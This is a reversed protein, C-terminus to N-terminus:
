KKDLSKIVTAPNGGVVSNPPVDNVVVAGAAVISNDGINAMVVSNNGLWCNRGISVKTFVGGQQKIPTGANDFHHQNKGSLIHVGSGLLTDRGIRCKGINCQPGIYAGHEIDTDQHSLIVNFSIVTDAECKNLTFRYFAYRLYNGIKGPFLSMFQSFGHLCEDKNFVTSLILYLLIFPAVLLLFFLNILFKLIQKM